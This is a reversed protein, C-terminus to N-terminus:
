ARFGNGPTRLGYFRAANLGFVNERDARDFQRMYNSILEKVQRYSGALLCVPWDSGFMLRDAGFAEFVLDLCPKCDDASWDHWDAETILGSLKCFVNPHLAMARMRSSWGGLDKARINPKALHDVVFRQEPFQAVFECAADLHKPYILIDYTFGFQRLCSIGRRFDERLLFRDDPESQVIHRVGRLKEYRSFSALREEVNAACLDFWGVVGVIERHRGACDLLFQTERESQDAQVTISADMGNAALEPLLDEPLFDRRLSSMEDTIWTDCRRQYRWFHQHADINM